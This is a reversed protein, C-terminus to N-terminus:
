GRRRAAALMGGVVMASGVVVAYLGWGVTAIQTGLLEKGSLEENINSIDIVAVAGAGVAALLAIAARATGARRSWLLTFTFAVVAALLTLRGDGRMGSVSGLFTEIWPGLSGAAVVLAGLLAVGSAVSLGSFAEGITTPSKPEAPKIEGPLATRAPSTDPPPISKPNTSM